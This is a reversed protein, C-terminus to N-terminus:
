VNLVAFAMINSPKNLLFLSDNIAGIRILDILTKDNKPTNQLFNSRIEIYISIDILTASSENQIYNSSDFQM